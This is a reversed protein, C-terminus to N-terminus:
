DENMISRRRAYKRSIYLREMKKTSVGKDIVYATYFARVQNMVRIDYSDCKPKLQPLCLNKVMLSKGNPIYFINNIHFPELSGTIFDAKSYHEPLILTMTDLQKRVKWLRFISECIWHYYNFWPHHIVLYLKEDNLIILKDPNDYASYYYYSAEGVYDKKQS